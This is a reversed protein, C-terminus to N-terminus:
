EPLLSEPRVPPYEHMLARSFDINLERRSLCSYWGAAQSCKARRDCAARDPFDHIPRIWSYDALVTESWARQPLERWNVRTAQSAALARM